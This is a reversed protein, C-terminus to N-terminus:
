MLCLDFLKTGRGFLRSDYETVSHETVNIVHPCKEANLLVSMWEAGEMLRDRSAQKRKQREKQQAGEAKGEPEHWHSKVSRWLAKVVFRLTSCSGSAGEIM